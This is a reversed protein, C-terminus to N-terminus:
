EKSPGLIVLFCLGFRSLSSFICFDDRYIHEHLTSYLKELINEMYVTFYNFNDYSLKGIVISRGMM